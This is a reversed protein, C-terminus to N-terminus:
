ARHHEFREWVPAALPRSEDRRRVPRRSPERGAHVVPRPVHARGACWLFGGDGLDVRLREPEGDQSALTANVHDTRRSSRSPAPKASTTSSSRNRSPATPISTSSGSLGNPSAPVAAGQAARRQRRLLCRRERRHRDRPDRAGHAHVRARAAHRAHAFRLDQLISAFM